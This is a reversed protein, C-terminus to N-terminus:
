AEPDAGLIERDIYRLINRVSISGVLKGGRTIPLHRLGQSVMRHIAYAPPDNVSLTTPRPTMVEGVTTAGPDLGPLLVRSMVDRETFIGTHRDGELVQVCGHRAERMRLVVEKVTEDATATIPPTLDIDRIRDTMLRGAFGGRAEPVDLGALDSGCTECLEVGAINDAGCSPCRM